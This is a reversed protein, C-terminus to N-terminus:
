SNELQIRAEKIVKDNEKLMRQLGNAFGTVGPKKGWQRMEETVQATITNVIISKAKDRRVM